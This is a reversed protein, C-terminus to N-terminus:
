KKDEEGLTNITRTVTQSAGEGAVIPLIAQEANQARQAATGLRKQAQTFRKQAKEFTAKSTASNQRLGQLKRQAKGFDSIANDLQSSASKKLAAEFQGEIFGGVQTAGLGLVADTTVSLVTSNEGNKALGEGVSILANGTANILKAAKFSKSLVSLGSSSAGALASIGISKLDVNTAAETFSQGSALNAAVQFGYDVAGGLLAGVLINIGEGDPDTANLPNNAVYVYPSLSPYETARPDVVM